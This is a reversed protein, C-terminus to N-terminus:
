GIRPYRTSPIIANKRGNDNKLPLNQHQCKHGLPENKSMPITLTLGLLGVGFTQEFCHNLHSM